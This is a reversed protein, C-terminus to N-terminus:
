SSCLSFPFRFLPTLSQYINDDPSTAAAVTPAMRVSAHVCPTLYAPYDTLNHILQWVGRQLWFLLSALLPSNPLDPNNSKKTDMLSALQCSLVTVLPDPLVGCLRQSGIKGKFWTWAKLMQKQVAQGRKNGKM